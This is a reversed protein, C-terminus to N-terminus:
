LKSQPDSVSPYNNNKKKTKKELQLIAKYPLEYVFIQGLKQCMKFKKCYIADEIIM